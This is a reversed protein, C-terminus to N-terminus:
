DVTVATSSLPNTCVQSEAAPTTTALASEDQEKKQLRRLNTNNTYKQYCLRHYYGRSNDERTVGEKRLFCTHTM